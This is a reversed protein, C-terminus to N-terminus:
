RGRGLGARAACEARFATALGFRPVGCFLELTRTRLGAPSVSLSGDSFLDVADTLHEAIVSVNTTDPRHKPLHHLVLKSDAHRGALVPVEAFSSGTSVLVDADELLRFSAESSASPMRVIGPVAAALPAFSPPPESAETGEYCAYHQAPLGALAGALQGAVRRFFATDRDHLNVDGGRLHWVVNLTEVPLASGHRHKWRMCRKSEEFLGASADDVFCDGHDCCMYHPIEFLVNCQRAADGQAALAYPCVPVRALGPYLADLADLNFPEAYALGLLHYAWVYSEGFRPTGFVAASEIVFTANVRRAARWATQLETLRHGLGGTKAVPFAVFRPCAADVAVRLHPCIERPDAVDDLDLADAALRRLFLVDAASASSASSLASPSLAASSLSSPPSSSSSPPPSRLRTALLLVVALALLVM